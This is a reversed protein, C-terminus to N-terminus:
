QEANDLYWQITQSLRDKFSGQPRYGLESIKSWEVSYRFDHGPRDQVYEIYTDDLNMENLILKTLELNTLETGGGINYINGPSGKTLIAYLARCHDDVFLWDRINKGNGYVPVKSKKILRTVFNPILKESNQRPGFNNSCRSIRIDLGYTNAFAMALLDASAKSASYPSNPSLISEEDWSGSNISGYVEDTSVQLFTTVRSKRAADLLIQTGVINTQIFCTPDNISNDVHSEAAFNVIVDVNACLESVLKQDCIDGQYFSFNPNSAVSLLNEKKGAYTLKDLVLVQSIEKFENTLAMEVFRSGIFGAGGTVLIKLIAGKCCM